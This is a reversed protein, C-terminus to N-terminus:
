QEWGGAGKGSLVRRDRGPVGRDGPTKDAAAQQSVRGGSKCFGPTSPANVRFFSLDGRPEKLRGQLASLAAPASARAPIAAVTEWPHARERAPCSMGESSTLICAQLWSPGLRAPQCLELPGVALPMWSLCWTLGPSDPFCLGPLLQWGLQTGPIFGDWPALPPPPWQFGGMYM